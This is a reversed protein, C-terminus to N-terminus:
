QRFKWTSLLFIKAKNGLTYGKQTISCSTATLISNRCPCSEKDKASAKARPAGPHDRSQDRRLFARAKAGPKRGVDGFTPAKMPVAAASHLVVEQRDKAQGDALAPNLFDDTPDGLGDLWM